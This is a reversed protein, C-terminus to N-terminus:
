LQRAIIAALYRGEEDPRFRAVPSKHDRFFHPDLWQINEVGPFKGRFVILKNGEYTTCDPYNVLLVYANSYFTVSVISFRKPNPNPPQEASTPQEPQTSCSCSSTSSFLRLGM